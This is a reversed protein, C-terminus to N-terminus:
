DSNRLLTIAIMRSNDIKRLELRIEMYWIFKFMIFITLQLLESLAPENLLGVSTTRSSVTVHITYM